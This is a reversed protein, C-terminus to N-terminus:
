EIVEDALPFLHVPADLWCHFFAKAALWASRM